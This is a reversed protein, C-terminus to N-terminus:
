IEESPSNLGSGAQGPRYSLLNSRVGSLRSTPPELGGRGVMNPPRLEAPLAGSKCDPPRRNSGSLSWWRTSTGAFTQGFSEPRRTRLAAPRSRPEPHRKNWQGTVSMKVDNLSFVRSALRHAFGPERTIPPAGEPAHPSAPDKSEARDPAPTRDELATSRTATPKCDKWTLFVSVVNHTPARTGRAVRSLSPDPGRPGSGQIVIETGSFAQSKRSRILRSFPTQHIGLCCSAIFSTISQSLGHPASFLSQDASKRIPSGVQGRRCHRRTSSRPRM